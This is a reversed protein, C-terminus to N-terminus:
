SIDISSIQCITFPNYIHNIDNFAEPLLPNEILNSQEVINDYKFLHKNDLYSIMSKIREFENNTINDSKIYKFCNSITVTFDTTQGEPVIRLVYEISSDNIHMYLYHMKTDELESYDVGPLAEDSYIEQLVSGSTIRNSNNVTDLYVKLSTLDNVNHKIPIIYDGVPLSFPVYQLDDLYTPITVITNGSVTYVLSNSISIYETFQYLSLYSQKLLGEQDYDYTYTAQMTTGSSDVDQSGLLVVPCYQITFIYLILDDYDTSSFSLKVGVQNLIVNNGYEDTWISNPANRDVFTFKHLGYTYAKNYKSFDITTISVTSKTRSYIYTDTINSGQITNDINDKTKYYITQNDLLYQSKTISINVAFLSRGQWGSSSDLALNDVNTWNAENDNDGALRYSITFDNLTYDTSVTQADAPVYIRHADNDFTIKYSFDNTVLLKDNIDPQYSVSTHDIGLDTQLDYDTGGMSWCTKVKIQDGVLFTPSSPSFTIGYTSLNVISNNYLWNIGNYSFTYTNEEIFQSNTKLTSVFTSANLSVTISNSPSEICYAGYTFTYTTNARLLASNNKWIEVGNPDNVTADMFKYPVPDVVVDNSKYSIKVDYFDVPNNAEIKVLCRSGINTFQNETVTLTDGTDIVFWNGEIANIGGELVDTGELAQVKWETLSGTRYLETGVGLVVYNTRYLDTYIVYEGTSLIRRDEGEDFLVYCNDLSRENMIWYLAYASSSDITFQNIKKIDIKKSGSLINIPSVINKILRAAGTPAINEDYISTIYHGDNDIDVMHYSPDDIVNTPYVNNHYGEIDFSPCILTGYGYVFYRYVLGETDDSETWYLVLYENSKIEYCTNAAIDDKIRYEFKVYNSYSATKILNPSYLQIAENERLEYVNAQLNTSTANSFEIHVNGQLSAVNHIVGGTSVDQNLKYDFEEDKIFIQSNGNLVSKAYVDDRVQHAYSLCIKMKDGVRIDIGQLFSIGYQSLTVSSGDVSWTSSSGSVATCTFETPIYCKHLGQKNYYTVPNVFVTGSYGETRQNVPVYDLRYYAANTSSDITITNSCFDIDDYYYGNIYVSDFYDPITLTAGNVPNSPNYGYYAPLIDEYRDNYWKGTTSDYTLKEDHHYRVALTSYTINYLSIAKIRSDANLIINYVLEYPIDERFEINNSSLNLYLAEKINQIVEKKQSTSLTLQPIISCKVPYVNKFYCVHPSVKGEPESGTYPPILGAYDHGIVKQEELYLKVTDITPDVNTLMRFSDYNKSQTDTNVIYQLLYLKLTFPTIEEPLDEEVYTIKQDINNMSSIVRYTTQIDNTRDCVFGNGILDSNIIANIYDRLTVLTQFTGITHKYNKYATDITEYSLGNSAESTNTIFINDTTLGVVTEGIQKNIADKFKTLVGAKINGSDASTTIYKLYIGEQFINDVDEPFEIYCTNNDETIGFRYYTNGFNELHLNDKQQWSSYNNSNANTIFIGNEAVNLTTFYLRNNDDLNSVTILTNGNIEYNNPIGQIVDCLVGSNASGDCRITVPGIGGNHEGLLTYVITEEEDTIMTFPEISITSDSYPDGIWRISITTTASKYWHMYYGLQEFLQRANSMQTVSLPFCELVSKDTIYNCKDAILANLKLLIVGPDSENSISPDWKNTLEKVLDLLEVYISSFDKNTYSISQLPSVIENM